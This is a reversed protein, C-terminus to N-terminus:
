IDHCECYTAAPATQHWPEVEVDAISVSQDEIVVSAVQDIQFGHSIFRKLAGSIEMLLISGLVNECAISGAYSHAILCPILHQVLRDM